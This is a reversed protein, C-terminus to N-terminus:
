VTLGSQVPVATSKGVGPAGGIGCCKTITLLPLSIRPTTSPLASATIELLTSYDSATRHTRNLLHAPLQVIVPQLPPRSKYDRSAEIVFAAANEVTAAVQSTDAARYATATWDRADVYRRLEALQNEPEQDFTSMRAYIAAKM